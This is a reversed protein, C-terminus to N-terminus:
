GIGGKKKEIRVLVETQKKTEATQEVLQRVIPGEQGMALGSISVEPRIERALGGGFGGIGRRREAEELFDKRARTVGKLFHEESIFGKELMAQLGTKERKFIEAPTLLSEKLSEARSKLSEIKEIKAMAMALKENGKVAKEMQENFEALELSRKDWELNDAAQQIKLLSEAFSDLGATEIDFALAKNLKELSQITETQTLLNLLKEIRAKQDATAGETVAKSYIDSFKKQPGELGVSFIDKQLGKVIKDIEPSMKEINNAANKAEDGVQKVADSVKQVVNIKDELADFAKDMAIVAGTAVVISAAVAAWGAPGAFSMAVARAAALFKYTNALLKVLSVVAKLAKTALWLGGTWKAFSIASDIAKQDLKDLFEGIAKVGKTMTPLFKNGLIEAANTLNAKLRKVMNAYSEATRLADGQADSTGALIADYRLLVKELNNVDKWSKRIGKNFAAQKLSSETIIIGFKRVTEHNGVLASTFDRIVDADAANNFSAVDVALKVLAKDLELAKNRSLGLPVFTDQLGSMWKEVDQRARGVSKGFDTSWKRAAAAQDKFVTDFKSMIEQADSAVNVLKMIGLTAAGGALFAKGFNLMRTRAHDLQKGFRRVGRGSKKMRRDFVKTRATLNVALTSITAM